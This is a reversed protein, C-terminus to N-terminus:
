EHHIFTTHNHITTTTILTSTNLTTLFHIKIKDINVAVRLVLRGHRLNNEVIGYNIALLIVVLSQLAGVANFLVLFYVVVDTVVVGSVVQGGLIFSFALNSPYVGVSVGLSTLM